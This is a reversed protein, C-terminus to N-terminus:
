RRNYAGTLPDTIAQGLLESQLERIVDTIIYIVVITPALSVAFRLANDQGLSLMVLPAAVAILALSATIALRRPLVFYCLLVGPYCCLAGHLGETKLSVGIAIVTPLLLFAFPIPPRKKLHIAIGDIGFCVVIALTAVGLFINGEFLDLIGFPTIFIAVAVALLFM